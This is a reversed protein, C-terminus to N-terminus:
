SPSFRLVTRLQEMVEAPIKRAPDFAKTTRRSLSTQAISM